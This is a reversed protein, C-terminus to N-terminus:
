GCVAVKGRQTKAKKKKASSQVKKIESSKTRINDPEAFSRIRKGTGVHFLADLQKLKDM